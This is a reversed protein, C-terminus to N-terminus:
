KLLSLWTMLTLVPCLKPNKVNRRLLLRQGIYCSLDIWIWSSILKFGKGQGDQDTKSRRIHIFLYKPLGGVLLMQGSVRDLPVEVDGLQLDAAEAKRLLLACSILVYMWSRILPGTANQRAAEWMSLLDSIQFTKAREPGVFTRGYKACESPIHFM